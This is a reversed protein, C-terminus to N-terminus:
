PVFNYVVIGSIQVPQGSLLSPEFKAQRAADEAAKRLYPNGTVAKAATVTGDEDITVQVNVVGSARFPRAINPYPPKPLSIAKGNLVGGNMMRLATPTTPKPENEDSTNIKEPLTLKLDVLTPPYNICNRKAVYIKKGSSNIYFCKGKKGSFYEKTQSIESQEQAFAACSFILVFLFTICFKM